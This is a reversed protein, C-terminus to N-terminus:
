RTKKLVKDWCGVYKTLLIFGYSLEQSRLFQATTKFDFFGYRIDLTIANKILYPKKTKKKDM